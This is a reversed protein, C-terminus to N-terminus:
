KLTMLFAVLDAVEQDSLDTGYNQYMVGATFGDTIEADPEIISEKLYEEASKGAVATEARTGMGDHSPGVLVVGPDLSHCSICGPASAAGITIGKYLSEGRAADGIVDGGSATSTDDGGGCATLLLSLALVVVAFLTIKRM